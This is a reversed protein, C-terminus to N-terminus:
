IPIIKSFNINQISNFGFDNNKSSINFSILCNSYILKLPWPQGKGKWGPDSTNHDLWNILVKNEWLDNAWNFEFKM